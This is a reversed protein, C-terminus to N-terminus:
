HRNQATSERGRGDVYLSRVKLNVCEAENLGVCWKIATAKGFSIVHPKAAGLAANTVVAFGLVILTFFRRM